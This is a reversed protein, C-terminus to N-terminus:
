AISVVRKMTADMKGMRLPITATDLMYRDPDGEVPNPDVARVVRGTEVWPMVRAQIALEFSELAHIKLFKDATDQAQAKTNFFQSVFEYTRRGIAAISTPSNPDNNEAEAYIVPTSGEGTVAIHNYLREDNSKKGFAAVLGGPGTKFEYVAPMTAPDQMIEMRLFGDPDFYVEYGYANAIEKIATWRMTGREYSHDRTTLLGTTPLAFKTIGGNVAIAKILVEIGQGSKFTTAKGFKDKSLRKTADRCTVSMQHPFADSSKNDIYFEGLPAEWWGAAVISQPVRLGRWVKIMHNYSLTDLMSSENQFTIDLTRREDRNWDISVSGDVIPVDEWVPTGDYTYISARSDVQIIPENELYSVVDPPVIVTM